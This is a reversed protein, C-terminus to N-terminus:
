VGTTGPIPCSSPGFRNMPVVYAFLALNMIADVVVIFRVVLLLWRWPARGDPVIVTKLGRAFAGCCGHTDDDLDYNSARRRSSSNENILRGGLKNYPYAVLGDNESAILASYERQAAPLSNYEVDTASGDTFNAEWDSDGRDVRAAPRCCWRFLPVLVLVILQAGVFIITSAIIGVWTQYMNIM